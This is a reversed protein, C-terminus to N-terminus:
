DEDVNALSSSEEERPDDCDYLNDMNFENDIAMIIALASPELTTNPM